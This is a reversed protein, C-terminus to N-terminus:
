PRPPVPLPAQPVPCFRKFYFPAACVKFYTGCAVGFLSAIIIFIGIARGLSKLSGTEKSADLYVKYGVGLAILSLAIGM